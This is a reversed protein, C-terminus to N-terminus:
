VEQESNLLSPHEYINGVVECAYDVLCSFNYTSGEESGGHKFEKWIQCEWGGICDRIEYLTYSQRVFDGTYIEKGNRDKLGTYQMIVVRGEPYGWRFVDGPADEHMMHPEVHRGGMDSKYGKHWARFKIERNM